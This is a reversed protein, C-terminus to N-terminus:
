LPGVLTPLVTSVVAAVIWIVLAILFSKLWGMNYLSGLALLWAFGGIIIALLGHGLFYYTLTYIVAGILGALVATGLGEEEGFIKTVIFIIITSIILSVMFNIIIGETAM